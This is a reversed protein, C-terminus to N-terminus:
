VMVTVLVPLVISVMVRDLDSELGDSKEDDISTDLITPRAGLEETVLVRVTVGVDDAEALRLLMVVMVAVGLEPEPVGLDAVEVVM